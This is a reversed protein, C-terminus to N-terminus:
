SLPQFEGRPSNKQGTEGFFVKVFFVKCLEKGKIFWVCM